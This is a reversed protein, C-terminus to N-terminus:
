INQYHNIIFNEKDITLAILDIRWGKEKYILDEHNNAYFLAIKQLKEKKAATLQDEPKLDLLPFFKMTKVEVFVLIKDPSKAIIDLEGWKKRFNREIIKYGKKKLYECAFDEGRKGLELKKNAM